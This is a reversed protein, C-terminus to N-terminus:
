GNGRLPRLRVRGETHNSFTHERLVGPAEQRKQSKRREDVVHVAGVDGKRSQAHVSVQPQSSRLETGSRTGLARAIYRKPAPRQSAHMITQQPRPAASLARTVPGAVRLVMRKM